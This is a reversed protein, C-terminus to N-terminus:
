ILGNLDTQHICRFDLHDHLKNHFHHKALQCSVLNAADDGTTAVFIDARSVGARSLCETEVCDGLVSISGFDADVRDRKIRDREVVCVEHGSSILWDALSRGLKGAGAITIYM